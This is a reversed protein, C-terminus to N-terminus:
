SCLGAALQAGHVHDHVEARADDVLVAVVLDRTFKHLGALADCRGADGRSTTSPDDRRNLRPAPSTSLVGDASRGILPEGVGDV